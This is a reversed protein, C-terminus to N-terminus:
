KNLNDYKLKLSKYLAREQLKSENLEKLKKIDLLRIRKEYDEDSEIFVKVPEITISDLWGDWCEGTIDLHTCGKSKAKTLFKQLKDVCFSGSSYGTDIEISKGTVKEFIKKEM